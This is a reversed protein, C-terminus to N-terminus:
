SVKVGRLDGIVCIVVRDRKMTYGRWRQGIASSKEVWGVQELKSVLARTAAIAHEMRVVFSSERVYSNHEESVLDSGCERVIEVLKAGTM